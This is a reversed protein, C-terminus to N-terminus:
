LSSENGEEKETIYNQCIVMRSEGVQKFEATELCTSDGQNHICDNLPCIIM